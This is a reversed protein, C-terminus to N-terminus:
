LFGLAFGPPLFPTLDLSIISLGFPQLLVDGWYQLATILIGIGLAWFMIRSRQGTQMCTDITVGSALYFPFKTQKRTQVYDVVALAVIFGLFTALIVWGLHFIIPPIWRLDFASGALLVEQPPALWWPLTYPTYAQVYISVSLVWYVVFGTSAIMTTTIEQRSSNGRMVQFLTYATLVTIIGFGLGFGFNM